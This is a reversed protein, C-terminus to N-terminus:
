GLAADYSLLDLLCIEGRRNRPQFLLFLILQSVFSQYHVHEFNNLPYFALGDGNKRVDVYDCLARAISAKGLGKKGHLIIVKGHTDVCIEEYLERLLVDRGLM